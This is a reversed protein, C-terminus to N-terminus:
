IDHVGAPECNFAGSISMGGGMLLCGDNGDDVRMAPDNACEEKEEGVIQEALETCNSKVILRINNYVSLSTHFRPFWKGCM